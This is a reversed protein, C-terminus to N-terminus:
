PTVGSFFSNHGTRLDKGWGLVFEFDGFVRITAQVGTDVLWNPAGFYGSPDSIKGTDVFPGLAFSLASWSYVNKAVDWNFLVYNRGLPSSGKQGEDLGPHGRMLLDNDRDFGLTLLEDFPVDGFTRGARLHSEMEYDDGKALPFWTSRLDGAVRGYRGLPREFFTGTEATATSDLSFRREPFRLLAREVRFNLAVASGPTLFESAGAPFGLVNRFRRDSYEIGESWNWRGSPIEHLEAGAVWTELNLFALAPPAAPFLTTGLNWNEDRADFFVRYQWEPNKSLPGSLESHVRRKQDDWRWYSLSNMGAHDLNYFEPFVTQYPVGRAFSGLWELKSNSWIDRQTSDVDLYFSGDSQENLGFRLGSFVNLADLRALATLYQDWTWESGLSFPLARDLLGADVHEAGQVSLDSLKPKGTRNWYKLAAELNGEQFYISALFDAAYDDQPQLALTRRLHRKARAIQKTKYEVGALEELLRPQRPDRALGSLFAAGANEWQKLQAFALGRYLELQPSNNASESFSDVLEQWRGADYLTKARASADSQKNSDYNSSAGSSARQAYVSAPSAALLLGLVLLVTLRERGSSGPAGLQQGPEM